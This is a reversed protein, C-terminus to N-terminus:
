GFNTELDRFIGVCPDLNMIVKAATKIHITSPV